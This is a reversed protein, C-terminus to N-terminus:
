LCFQLVTLHESYSSANILKQKCLYHCFLVSVFQRFICPGSAGRWQRRRLGASAPVESCNMTEDSKGEFDQLLDAQAAAREVVVHEGHVALAYARAM